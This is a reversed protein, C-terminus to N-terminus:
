EEQTGDKDHTLTLINMLADTIGGEDDETDEEDDGAAGLPETGENTPLPSPPRMDIDKPRAVPVHQERSVSQGPSLCGTFGATKSLKTFRALHVATFHAREMQLLGVQHALGVEGEERLAGEERTLFSEEDCIYTIVRRIEVNLREVEEKVHLIKFHQEMAARGAPLAWLEQRIDQRADQLLDFDALFASEMVEEWELHEQIIAAKLAKSRAQLAKAIHKRLKYGTGAMNCKSLEFMRSVILRELNNLARQYQHKRVLEATAAWKEDGAVWCREVGLRVELDQVAALAKAQQELAHRQQTKLRQTAKVAEAYGAGTDAPLFPREVGLVGTVRDDIDALNVLKQYYEMELTEQLPEKLLGRLHTKEKELWEEFEVTSQVNLRCMADRLTQQTALVELARHYKSCLLASLGHYTEFVDTHKMYNVIAQQRHFRTTHRTTSALANSKSFYIECGELTETGVGKVYTTLNETQCMRGHGLGHFAGVLSVYNNDAALKSLVPHAKVQKAFKCGVDYGSAIEGLVKILHNVVAFGYKTLEESKVMDAVVLVFGHRCLAPFIGTEDYMGWAHTTVSEKMNQWREECGSLEEGEEAEEMGEFNKMLEELGEKAWKDVEEHSLYYDGAAVRDDLRERSLGPATTGDAYTEWERVEFQSLSNNGDITCLFPLQVRPKGEIKYLCAPCANKLHWNPTNHGLAVQVRKEVGAHVALYVDFAVSFQSALFAQIGLRPHHLNTIRYAKLARITIAVNPFYPSVPIWGHQVCASAVYHDGHILSLDKQAASFMDVVMVKRTDQVVADDPLKHNCDLGEGATSTAWRIYANTMRELQASFVNVQRQTCDRRSRQDLGRGYLKHHHDRLEQLIEENTRQWQESRLDEGANSIEAAVRGQLVDQTYMEDDNDFVDPIDRWADEARQEKRALNQWRELERQAAEEKAVLIQAAM